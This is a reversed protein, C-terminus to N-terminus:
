GNMGAHAENQVMSHFGAHLDAILGLLNVISFQTMRRQGLLILFGGIGNTPSYKSTGGDTQLKEM